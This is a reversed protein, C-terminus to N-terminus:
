KADKTWTVRAAFAAAKHINDVTAQTVVGKTTLYNLLVHGVGEVGPSNTIVDLPPKKDIYGQLVDGAAYLGASALNAAEPGGKSEAVAVIAASALSDPALQAQWTTATACGTLLRSILYFAFALSLLHWRTNFRNTASILAVAFAVAILVYHIITM